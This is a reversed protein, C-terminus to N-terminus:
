LRFKGEITSTTSTGDPTSVTVDAMPAGLADRVVGTLIALGTLTDDDDDTTGGNNGGSGGEFPDTGEGGGAGNTACGPLVPLVLL